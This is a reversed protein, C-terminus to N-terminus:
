LSSGRIRDLWAKKAEQVTLEENGKYKSLDPKPAEPRNLIWVGDIKEVTNGSRELETIATWGLHGHFRSNPKYPRNYIMRAYHNRLYAPIM